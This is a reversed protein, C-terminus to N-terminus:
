EEYYDEEEYDEYEEDYEENSFGWNFGTSYNRIKYDTDVKNGESDVLKYGNEWTGVLLYSDYDKFNKDFLNVYGHPLDAIKEGEMTYLAFEEDENSAALIKGNFSISKFKPRIIWEGEKDM